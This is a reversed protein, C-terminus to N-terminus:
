QVFDLRTEGYLRPSSFGNHKASCLEVRCDTLDNRSRLSVQEIARHEQLVGVVWQALM